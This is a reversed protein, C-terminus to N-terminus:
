TRDGVNPSGLRFLAPGCPSDSIRYAKEDPVPLLPEANAPSFALVGHYLEVIPAAVSMPRNMIIMGISAIAPLRPRLFRTGGDDPVNGTVVGSKLASSTLTTRM